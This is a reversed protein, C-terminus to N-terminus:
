GGDIAVWYNTDTGIDFTVTIHGRRRCGHHNIPYHVSTMAEGDAVTRWRWVYQETPRERLSGGCYHRVM